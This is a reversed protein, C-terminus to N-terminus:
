EVEWTKNGAAQHNVKVDEGNNYKADMDHHVEPSEWPKEAGKGKVQWKFRLNYSDIWQGAQVRRDGSKGPAKSWGPVDNFRIYNKDKNIVGANEGRTYPPHYVGDLEYPRAEPPKPLGNNDREVYTDQVYQRFEYYKDIAFPANADPPIKLTANQDFTINQTENLKQTTVGSYRSTFELIPKKKPDHKHRQSRRKTASEEGEEGARKRTTASATTASEGEEGARKPSAHEKVTGATKEEVRDGNLADPLGMRTGKGQPPRFGAQGADDTHVRVQSFGAGPRAEMKEQVPASLPQGPAHPVDPVASRQVAAPTHRAQGPMRALAVNGIGPQLALTRTGASGTHAPVHSFDAGPRAATEETLRGALPAGRSSPLDDVASRYVATHLRPAPTATRDATRRSQGTGPVKGPHHTRM